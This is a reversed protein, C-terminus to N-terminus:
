RTDDTLERRIFMVDVVINSLPKSHHSMGYLIHWTSQGSLPAIRVRLLPNAMGNEDIDGDFQFGAVVASWANTSASTDFTRADNTNYAIDPLPYSHIVIPKQSKIQFGDNANIVGKVDLKVAPSQTGIGVNGNGMVRMNETFNASEGYGFAIDSSSTNGHIQLLHSAIGFGYHAGSQGHLSIKDGFGDPFTLLFGPATVGGIGVKSKAVFNSNLTLTGQNVTLSGNLTQSAKTAMLFDNTNFSAFRTANTATGAGAAYGAQSALTAQYAHIAYPATVLQQRPSIEVPSAIPGQPTRAISLGLYRNPNEFAELLSDFKGASSGTSLTGGSDSLLVNFMGNSAVNLSFVRGWIYNGEGAQTPHDWIKFQVDYYGGPVAHGESDTLKGQYNIAAPVSDQAQALPLVPMALLGPLAVFVWAAWRPRAPTPTPRGKPNRIAPKLNSANNM